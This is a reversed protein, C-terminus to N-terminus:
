ATAAPPGAECISSLTQGVEADTVEKNRAGREKAAERAIDALSLMGLLQGADDLVPLRRIKCERMIAEARAIPDGPACGLVRTAMASAVPVEALRKGRTYSCMCVDRDTVIGVVRNSGDSAVVPVCGIDNEWMIKAAENLTDESRCSRIEKTMLQEVNM